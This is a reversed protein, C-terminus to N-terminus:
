KIKSINNSFKIKISLLYKKRCTSYPIGILNDHCWETFNYIKSSRPYLFNNEIIKHIIHSIIM